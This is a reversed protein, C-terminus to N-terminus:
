VTSPVRDNKPAQSITLAVLASCLILMNVNITTKKWSGLYFDKIKTIMFPKMAGKLLWSLLAPVAHKGDCCLVGPYVVLWTILKWREYVVCAPLYLNPVLHDFLFYQQLWTNYLYFLNHTKRLVFWIIYKLLCYKNISNIQQNSMM